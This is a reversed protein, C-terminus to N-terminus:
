LYYFNELMLLYVGNFYICYIETKYVVSIFCDEINSPFDMTIYEATCKLIQVFIFYCCKEINVPFAGTVFLEICVQKQVYNFFQFERSNLPISWYCVNCYMGIITCM